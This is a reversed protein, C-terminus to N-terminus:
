ASDYELWGMTEELIADPIFVLPDDLAEAIQEAVWRSNGVGSFYFIM